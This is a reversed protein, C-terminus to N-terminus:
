WQGDLSAGADCLVSPHREQESIVEGGGCFLGPEGFEGNGRDLGPVDQHFDLGGPEVREVVGDGRAHHGPDHRVVVGDHQAAVGGTDDLRGSVADFSERGAVLYEGV